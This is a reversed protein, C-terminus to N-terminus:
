FSLQEGVPKKKRRVRGKPLLEDAAAQGGRDEPNTLASEVYIQTVALSSHGLLHMVEEYDVRGESKMQEVRLRAGAHRLGHIHAKREEVGVRRAYKKLIRNALSNSIPGEGREGQSLPQPHPRLRLVRDEDLPTFIYDGPKMTEWRGDAKLYTVIAQYCNRNLVAKREDGGKYRYSFVYDGGKVTQLDGWKLNLVESSRRCTVMISYLLAFDRKGTLCETNVAALISKAEDPTPYVAKGYPKVKARDVVDFPNRRDAPWLDYKKQVFTYFDSLAALKLNFTTKALPERRIVLGTKRDLVEKGERGLFAAWREAMQPTVEWPRAQAWRFFQKWATEYNGATSGTDNRRRKAELWHHYADIWAMWLQTGEDGFVVGDFISVPGVEVAPVIEVVMGDPM